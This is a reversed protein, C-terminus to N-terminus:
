QAFPDLPGTNAPEPPPDRRPPRTSGPEKDRRPESGPNRRKTDGAAPKPELQLAVEYQRSEGAPVTLEHDRHEALKLTYIFEGTTAPWELELPTSGVRLGDFKRYVDAGPPTSAIRVKVKEAATSSASAAGPDTPSPRAEVAPSAPGVQAGPTAGSAAAQPGDGTAVLTAPASPAEGKNMFLAAALAGALLFAGGMTAYRLMPSRSTAVMETMQSTAGGLTTRQSDKTGVTTPAAEPAPAPGSTPRTTLRRGLAVGASHPITSLGEIAAILEEATQFREAPSKALLRLILEETDEPIPRLSSPTPPAEYIHAAMVAGAGYRVFPPQGCLMQFLICGLAYLDTRHDVRKAGTCQEPSMFAPTGMLAGTRTQSNPMQNHTLKAIGFDLLKIREGGPVEPDPVLFINDLKLDRHVIGAKHAAALASAIQRTFLLADDLELCGVRKIRGSLSEGRLYEMVIYAAHNEAYGFDFVKVISPHQIETAARAENFFREVAEENGSLDSALVKVAAESRLFVQQALYVVGMGGAGLRSVIEYNGLRTGPEIEDQKEDNEDM